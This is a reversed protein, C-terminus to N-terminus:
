SFLRPLFTSFSWLRDFELSILNMMKVINVSTSVLCYYPELNSFKDGYKTRGSCYNICQNSFTVLM